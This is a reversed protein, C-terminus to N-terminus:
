KVKLILGNAFIKEESSIWDMNKATLRNDTNIGDINKQGGTGV